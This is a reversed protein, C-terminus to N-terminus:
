MTNLIDKIILVDFFSDHEKGRVPIKFARATDYSKLKYFKNGNLFSDLYDRLVLQKQTPNRKFMSKILASYTEKETSFWWLIVDDSDLWNDFDEFVHFASRASLFSDATGGTYAVHNWMYFHKSRPKMKESFHSLGSWNSNVKVASIQTPNIFGGKDIWEIDAIVYNGM